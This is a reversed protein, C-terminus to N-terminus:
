KRLLLLIGAVIALIAGVMGSQPLSWHFLQLCNMLILWIALLLLGIDKFRDKILSLLLIVGAGLAVSALVQKQYNFHWHSLDLVAGAILWCAILMLATYKM